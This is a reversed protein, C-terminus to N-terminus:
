LEGEAGEAELEKLAELRKKNRRTVMKITSAQEAKTLQSWNEIRRLTGDTNVIIPGLDSMALSPGGVELKHTMESADTSTSTDHPAPLEHVENDNVEQSHPIVEERNRNAGFGLFSTDDASCLLIGNGRTALGLSIRRTNSHVLQPQPWATALLVMMWAFKM